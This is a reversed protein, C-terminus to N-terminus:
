LTELIKLLHHLSYNTIKSRNDKIFKSLAKKNFDIFSIESFEWSNKANESLELIKDSTLDGDVKRLDLMSIFGVSFIDRNFYFETIKLSENKIIEKVDLSISLEEKLARLITMLPQSTRSEFDEPKASKSLSFDIKSKNTAVKQSRKMFMLKNDKTIIGISTKYAIPIRTKKNLIEAILMDQELESLLSLTESYVQRILYKTESLNLFIKKDKILYNVVCLNDQNRFAHNREKEKWKKEILEHDKKFRDPIHFSDNKDIKFLIQNLEFGKNNKLITKISKLVDM